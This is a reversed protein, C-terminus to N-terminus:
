IPEMISLVYDCQNVSHNTSVNFIIGNSEAKVEVIKPLNETKNFSLIEYLAQGTKVLSGLEVRNQIM